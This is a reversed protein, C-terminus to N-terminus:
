GKLSSLRSMAGTIIKQIDASEPLEERVAAV